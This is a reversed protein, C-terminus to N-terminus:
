RVPDQKPDDQNVGRFTLVHFHGFLLKSPLRFLSLEIYVLFPLFGDPSIVAMTFSPAVLLLAHGLLLFQRWLDSPLVAKSFVDPQPHCYLVYLLPPKCPHM